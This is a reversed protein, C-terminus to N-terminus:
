DAPQPCSSRLLTLSGERENATIALARGSGDFDALASMGEPGVVGPGTGGIEDAFGFGVPQISDFTVEGAPTVRYAVVASSEQLTVLVFWAGQSEVFAVQEPEHQRLAKREDRNYNSPVDPGIPHRVLVEHTVVDVIALGDEDELGVAVLRGDPSVAMGDPGVAEESTDDPGLAIVQLTAQPVEALDIFGLKDSDQIAVVAIGLPSVVVDEPEDYAEADVAIQQVRCARRVGLEIVPTQCRAPDPDLEIISVSGGMRGSPKCSIDSDDEDATVLFRGDPSFAASDPAWGVGIRGLPAGFGPGPRVEVFLVSGCACGPIAGPLCRCRGDVCRGDLCPEDSTCEPDSYDSVAIAAMEGDVSPSVAALDSDLNGTPVAVNDGLWLRDQDAFLEAIRNADTYSVIARGGGGPLFRVIEPNDDEDTVLTWRHELALRRDPAEPCYALGAACAPGDCIHDCGAALLGVVLIARM